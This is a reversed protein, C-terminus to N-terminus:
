ASMRATLETTPDSSETRDFIAPAFRHIDFEHTRVGHHFADLEARDFILEVDATPQDIDTRLAFRGDSRRLQTIPLRDTRGARIGTQYSEFQEDRLLLIETKALTTATTTAGTARKDDWVATWGHKRAVRM